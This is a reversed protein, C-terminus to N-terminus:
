LPLIIVDKTKSMDDDVAVTVSAEFGQKNGVAKGSSITLTVIILAQHM